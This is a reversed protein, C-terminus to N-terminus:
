QCSQKITQKCILTTRNKYDLPNRIYLFILLNQQNLNELYSFYACKESFLSFPLLIIIDFQM